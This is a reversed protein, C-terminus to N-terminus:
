KLVAWVILMIGLGGLLERLWRKGVSPITTLALIAGCMLEWARPILLYFAAVPKTSVAWLSVGFSIVVCLWLIPAQYRPFWRHIGILLAPFFIYFQEEVSLSWTHLLAQTDSGDGFYGDGGFNRRFYINSSFATMALMSKGLDVLDIPALLILSVIVCFLTVSFLAPFIRRVRREYFVAFSFSGKDIDHIVISSILFGSIVFFIDVGVFGGSFIGIGAHYFLVALIALARLGDIDARYNPSRAVLSELKM